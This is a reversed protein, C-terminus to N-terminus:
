EEIESLAVAVESACFDCLPTLQPTAHSGNWTPLVYHQVHDTEEDDDHKVDCMACKTLSLRKAHPALAEALPRPDHLDDSM